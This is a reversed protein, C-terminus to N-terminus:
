LMCHPTSVLKEDSLFNDFAFYKFPKVRIVVGQHKQSGVLQDLIKPSVLVTPLNLRLAESKIMRFSQRDAVESMLVEQVDDAMARFSELVPNVGFVINKDISNPM